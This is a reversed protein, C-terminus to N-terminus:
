GQIVKNKKQEEIFNYVNILPLMIAPFNANVCVGAVISRLFPFLTATGNIEGFKELKEITLEKESQFVGTIMIELSFPYNNQDANPFLTTGLNVQVKRGEVDTSTGVTFNFKIGIPDANQFLANTNLNINNVQYGLFKFQSEINPQKDM